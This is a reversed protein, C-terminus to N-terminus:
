ARSAQLYAHLDEHLTTTLITQYLNCYFHCSLKEYFMETKFKTITLTTYHERLPMGKM